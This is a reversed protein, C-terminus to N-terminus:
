AAHRVTRGSDADFLYWRDAPAALGVRDGIRLRVGPPTRAVISHGGAVVHAFVNDGIGEVLEVDAMTGTATVHVHEPRIGADLRGGEALRPPLTFPGATIGDASREVPLVNMRPTGVFGAVFRNVPQRYVEEPTGAQELRGARLVALRDGVTLAEQQDHTVHVMTTGLSRHLRRLETRMDARLQPDLNSLPEDLLLIAPQRVLARALAVRQREGGSLERPRRGLLEGCGVLTAAAAVKARIVPKAVKRVALGFGINEAVDLHPFLAYSQFVM